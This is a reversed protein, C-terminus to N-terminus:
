LTFRLVFCLYLFIIILHNKELNYSLLDEDGNFHPKFLLEIDLCNSEGLFLLVADVANCIKQTLIPM